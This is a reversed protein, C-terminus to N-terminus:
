NNGGLSFTEEARALVFDVADTFEIKWQRSRYTGLSRREITFVHDGAIGLGLRIPSCFEGLSDRWSLLVQPETPGTAHGRKFTLRILECHKKADTGQNIFGTLVEAKITTGNDSNATSDLTAITGDPCGVLHLNREEWYYFSTIPFATHGQGATWGHWQAWGGDKQGVFTRGDSPMLWCMMDFQDAAWRFGYCDTVDDIEDLTASIADSMVSIARGDSTVFERRNTLWALQEDASIVSHAAAIGRNIARGPSLILNPDPSYVQLTTAGFAFLESGNERLALLPDPRAEANTFNLPDWEETGADGPYSYRIRGTADVDTQDDSILRLNLACVHNCDPPSGGLASLAAVGLDVKMPAGGGAIVLRWPTIAFVPRGEGELFTGPLTSLTFNGFFDGNADFDIKIVRREETVYYIDGDFAYIGIVASTDTTAQFASWPTIGPRRRVAGMADTMVNVALPSAGALPQDGSRQDNGFFIQKTPM